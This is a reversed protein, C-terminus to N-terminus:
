GALAVAWIANVAITPSVGWRIAQSTIESGFAFSYNLMPALLGALMSLAMGLQFATPGRVDAGDRAESGERGRGAM